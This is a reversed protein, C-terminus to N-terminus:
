RLGQAVLRVLEGVYSFYDKAEPTGGVDGPIVVEKAGTLKAVLDASKTDYYNEVLIERIKERRVLEVVDALHSPPPPIGPKPELYAAPVLGSWDFFYSLTKHRSVVKTGRFPALQALWGASAAQLRREFDALRARYGAAGEPDLDALRAAIVGAVQAARRPDSLFHPNGAPHIDGQSRDVPGTPVELVSIASAAVVRRRGAPQIDPNRSINVLGPLWGIELDLGVDV